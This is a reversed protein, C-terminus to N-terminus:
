RFNSVYTFSRPIKSSVMEFHGFVMLFFACNGAEQYEKNLKCNVSCSILIMRILLPNFFIRFKPCIDLNYTPLINRLWVKELFFTQVNIKLSPLDSISTWIWSLICIFYLQLKIRKLAWPTEHHATSVQPVICLFSKM